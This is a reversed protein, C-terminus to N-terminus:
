RLFSSRTPPGRASRDRPLDARLIPGIWTTTGVPALCVDYGASPSDPAWNAVRVFAQPPGAEVVVAAEVAADVPDSAEPADAEVTADLTTSADVAAEVAADTTTADRGSGVEAFAADTKGLVAADFASADAKPPSADQNGSCAALVLGAGALGACSRNSNRM